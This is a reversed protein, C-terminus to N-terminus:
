GACGSCGRSPLDTFCARNAVDQFHYCSGDGVPESGIEFYRSAKRANRIKEAHQHVGLKFQIDREENTM